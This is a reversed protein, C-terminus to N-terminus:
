DELGYSDAISVVQGVQAWQSPERDPLEMPQSVPMPIREPAQIRNLLERREELWAEREKGFRQIAGAVLAYSLFLVALIVALEGFAVYIM